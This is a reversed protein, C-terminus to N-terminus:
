SARAPVDEPGPLPDQPVMQPDDGTPPMTWLSGRLADAVM